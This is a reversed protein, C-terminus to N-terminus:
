IFTAATLGTLHSANSLEIVLDGASQYGAVGNAEVILFTKGDFDGTTPTFLVAHHIALHSSNIAAAMDDDFFVQRLQGSTVEPDVGTVTFWLDLKDVNPNLGVITDFGTGTPGDNPSGLSDSVSTYIYTNHGAGGTLIDAGLGGQFKDGGKGGTLTDNGAGGELIFRGNTEAAGNFTLTDHAGLLAGDVTLVKGSAVNADNTTLNYSFGAVLNIKQVNVMSDATFVLGESYDGGLKLANAGAGGDLTDTAPDFNGAFVFADNGDGGSLEAYAGLAAGAMNIVDNGGFGNFVDDSDQTTATDRSVFEDKGSFFANDFATVDGSQFISFLSSVSISFDSWKGSSTVGTVTGESPIGDANFDGFGTGTITFSQDGSGIVVKTASHSSATGNGIAMLSASDVDNGSGDSAGVVKTM